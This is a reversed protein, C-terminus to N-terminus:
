TVFHPGPGVFSLGSSLRISKFVPSFLHFFGVSLSLLLSFLPPNPPLTMTTANAAAAAAAIATPRKRRRRYLPDKTTFFFLSDTKHTTSSFQQESSLNFISHICIRQTCLGM